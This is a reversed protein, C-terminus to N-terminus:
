LAADEVLVVAVGIAAGRDADVVHRGGGRQGVVSRDVLAARRGDAEGVSRVLTTCALRGAEVVAKGAVPQGGAQGGGVGSGAGAGACGGGVGGVAAVRDLAADEVLVVAVGIAAGRDADVVHRGGGRQGVVSRDVLAARRGDAEGV